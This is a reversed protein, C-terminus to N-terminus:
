VHIFKHYVKKCLKYFGYEKYFFYVKKLVSIDDVKDDVQRLSNYKKIQLLVTEANQDFVFNNIIDNYIHYIGDIYKDISYKNRAYNLSRLERNHLEDTNELLYLLTNLYNGESTAIGCFPSNIVEPLASNESDLALVVKGCSMAEVAMMGFTEYESPMLFIDCANYCNILIDIDNIWGLDLHKIKSPLHLLNKQGVTILSIKINDPMNSLTQILINLGKFHNECRAFLVISENDIGLRDRCKYKDRPSFINQDIGFPLYYVKKDKMIPSKIIKNIMWKSTAIFKINSNTIAFKKSYFELASTDIKRAFPKNLYNCDYCQTMWKTCDGHHICHGGLIWPDHVTMVTPIMKSILPLYQIDFNTNHILGLHLLNSTCLYIHKLIDISINRSNSFEPNSLEIYRVNVHKKSSLIRGLCHGGFQRSPLFCDEIYLINLAINNFYKKYELYNEYNIYDTRNWVKTDSGAYHIICPDNKASLLQEDSYYNKLWVYDSSDSLNSSYFIGELVCYKISIYKVPSCSLNLIELDFMKLRSYYKNINGWFISMINNERMMKINMVMFGSMFILKNKYEDYAQHIVCRDKYEAAVASLYYNDIDDFYVEQLDNCFLVDADSWIVKDYNTFISPILLRYYVAIPWNQSVPCGPLKGIDVKIWSIKCNKYDMVFNNIKEMSRQEIKGDHLVYIDYYTNDKKNKILSAIAVACPLIYNKDVGFIVPIKAFQM